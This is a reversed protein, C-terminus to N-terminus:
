YLNDATEITNLPTLYIAFGRAQAQERFKQPFTEPFRSWMMQLADFRSMFQVLVDIQFYAKGTAYGFNFLVKNPCASQYADNDFSYGAFEAFSAFAAGEAWEAVEVLEWYTHEPVYPKPKQNHKEFSVAFSVLKEHDFKQEREWRLLLQVQTDTLEYASSWHANTQADTAFCLTCFLLSLVFSPIKLM